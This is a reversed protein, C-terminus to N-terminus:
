AAARTADRENNLIECVALDMGAERIADWLRKQEAHFVDYSIADDYFADVNDRIAQVMERATKTTTLGANKTKM